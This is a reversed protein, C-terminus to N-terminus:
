VLGKLCLDREYNRRNVLGPIVRGGAMVYWAFADCAGKWNGANFRRAITSRCYAGGGLNYTFSIAAALQYPHGRLVPTCNLVPKAHEVLQYELSVRCEAITYAKDIIVDYTDGSCKTPVGAIDYYGKLVTGEWKEVTATALTAAGAGILLVLKPSVRHIM